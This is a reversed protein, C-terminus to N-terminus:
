NMNTHIFIIVLAVDDEVDYTRLEYASEYVGIKGNVYAIYNNDVETIENCLPTYNSTIVRVNDSINLTRIISYYSNKENQTRSWERAKQFMEKKNKLIEVYGEKTKPYSVEDLMEGVILLYARTYCSIVRWFLEPGLLKPDLLTHFASDLLSMYSLSSKLSKLRELYSNPSNKIKEVEQKINELYETKNEFDIAGNLIETQVIAYSIQDESWNSKKFKPYWKVDNFSLYYEKIAENMHQVVKNEEIGVVIKAFDEGSSLGYDIEAGAGFLLCIKKEDLRNWRGM